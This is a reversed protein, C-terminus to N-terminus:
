VLRACQRGLANSAPTAMGHDLLDDARRGEVAATVIHPPLDGVGRPEAALIKPLPVQGSVRRMVALDLVAREPARLYLRVFARERFWMGVFTEGSHGGNARQPDHLVKAALSLPDKSPM